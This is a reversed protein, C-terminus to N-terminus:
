TYVKTYYLLHQDKYKGLTSGPESFHHPHDIAPHITHEAKTEKVELSLLAIDPVAVHIIDNERCQCTHFELLNNYGIINTALSAPVKL